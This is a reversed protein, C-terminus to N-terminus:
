QTAPLRLSYVRGTGAAYALQLRSSNEDIRAGVQAWEGPAYFETHVVVFRVGLRALEDLSADDPFNRLLAYLREHLPARIGSYGHVTKQWHGMSHLM